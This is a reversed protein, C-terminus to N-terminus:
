RPTEEISLLHDSLDTFTTSQIRQAVSVTITICDVCIWAWNDGAVIFVLVLDCVKTTSESGKEITGGSKLM